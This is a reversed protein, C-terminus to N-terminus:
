FVYRLWLTAMIPRMGTDSARQRHSRGRDETKTEVLGQRLSSLSHTAVGLSQRWYSTRGKRALTQSRRRILFFGQPQAGRAEAVGALPVFPSPGVSAHREPSCEQRWAGGALACTRHPEGGFQGRFAQALIAQALGKVEQDCSAQALIAM